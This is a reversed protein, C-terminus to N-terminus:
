AARNGTPFGHSGTEERQALVPEPRVPAGCASVALGAATKINIAANLDRDHVTGCATCTWERVNLPKPGDVAGCTSCTQSTPEFRGTKVLTRGYRAAKYELMGIFSSWGADHVSKALRTRALGAVSLNEVAIGQNESILRTSLQHHFERRADTVKTHARAVKLRAKARNRSGKQKRSLERQAKKLKKEARRLFRPSDIKTGDSLVAFHTLGLDIGITRDTEPMRAQDADPDTDIVFSAFFRGAADKIVTVSTPTNPLTRSWKVKVAGIKPLNLRGSDTLHWRANATFRISQRADKRSKFRPAGLKPGERTGKLSAFFNRYATEADRLSQQLVVASVEGLWAREPTQKAETILKRSLQGATPFPQGARRADERARVADNFVVRACGFARALAAQQVTNPYVRISYRLQM